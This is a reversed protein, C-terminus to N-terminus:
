NSGADCVEKEAFTLQRLHVSELPREPTVLKPKLGNQQFYVACSRIYALRTKKFILGQSCAYDLAEGSVQHSKILRLIGQVRRLHRLPHEGSLLEDILKEVHPGIRKAQEKAHHVEFRAVSVKPEPYHSDFTSFKGSGQLRSHAAVPLSEESFVEVM